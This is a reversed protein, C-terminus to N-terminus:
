PLESEALIQLGKKMNQTIMYRLTFFEKTDIRVVLEDLRKM